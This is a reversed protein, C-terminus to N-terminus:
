REKSGLQEAGINTRVPIYPQPPVAM